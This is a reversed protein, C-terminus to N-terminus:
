DSRVHLCKVWLWAYLYKTILMDDEENNDDNNDNDHFVFKTMKNEPKQIKLPEWSRVKANVRQSEGVKAM